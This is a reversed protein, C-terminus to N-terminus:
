GWCWDLLLADTRVVTLAAVQPNPVQGSVAVELTGIYLEMGQLLQAMDGACGQQQPTQAQAGAPLALAGVTVIAATTMVTAALARARKTILDATGHGM